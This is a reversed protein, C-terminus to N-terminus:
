NTNTLYEDLDENPKEMDQVEDATTLVGVSAMVQDETTVSLPEKNMVMHQEPFVSEM